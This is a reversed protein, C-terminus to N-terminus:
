LVDHTTRGDMLTLVVRANRVEDDACTLLNRDFVAIDACKGVALSGTQAGMGHQVAANITWAKLLQTRTMGHERYWGEPPSGDAFHRCCAAYIADPINPIFLPLDTGITVLVGANFLAAYNFFQRERAEGGRERMYADSASQNLLLIQAYVEASLGLAALRPIDDPHPCELDSLAHHRVRPPNARHCEAFIDICHRIAADGEANLCCNFGLRDAELVQQRLLAYDVPKENHTHPRDTYPQLMDGTYDAIVGDGMFKFGHFRLRDSHFRDRAQRAFTFNAASAVPESVLSVRLSLEDNAELGAWADLLAPADDFCVDKIATIGRTALMAMFARLEEKVQGADNLMETLLHVRSEASCDDPTFGYRAIAAQNMWCYSKDSNIAVVPRCPFADDLEASAPLAGWQAASWGWAYLSKGAPLDQEAKKLLLLAAASTNTASLDVGRHMSMYGTFFTHNDCFGPCILREGLDRFHTTPGRWPSIYEDNALIASIVGHNIVIYGSFLEDSDATFINDSRLILDATHYEPM